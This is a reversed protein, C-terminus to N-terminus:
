GTFFHLFQMNRMPRSVPVGDWWDRKLRLLGAIGRKRCVEHLGADGPGVLAEKLIAIRKDIAGLSLTMEDSIDQRSMNELVYSLCIIDLRNVSHNRGDYGQWTYGKFSSPKNCDGQPKHVKHFMDSPGYRFDSIDKYMTFIVSRRVQANKAFWQDLMDAYEKNRAAEKAVESPLNDRSALAKSGTLMAWKVVLNRRWSRSAPDLYIVLSERVEGNMVLIDAAQSLKKLGCWPYHEITTGELEMANKGVSLAFVGDPDSQTLRGERDTAYWGTAGGEIDDFVRGYHLFSDYNKEIKKM